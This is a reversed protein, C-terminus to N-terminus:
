STQRRWTTGDRGDDLVIGKEILLDRIEDARGWNKELRANKRGVILQEVEEASIEDANGASAGQLFAEPDQQLIGVAEGL